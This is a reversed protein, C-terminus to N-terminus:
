ADGGYQEVIIKAVELAKERGINEIFKDFNIDFSGDNQKRAAFLELIYIADERSKDVNGQMTALRAEASQAREIWMSEDAM